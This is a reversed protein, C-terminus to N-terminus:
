QKNVPSWAPERVNGKSSPLRMKVAGDVSVAALIGRDGLQTAYVVMTGNPSISPSEDLYTETLVRVVGRKLDQVAIHFVGHNRHVMVLYRGDPTVQARANYDGEFTLREVDGSAIELKYIQPKGGRNSTFILSKGDPLWRPETDIAFHHTIRTLKKTAIEMTYIEPNGDKSLVLALHKGNPSWDPAGNLGRFSSILTRNGSRLEQIYIAPRNSEFSVYAIHSGDASWSPSLIPEKSHLLNRARHGDADAVELRYESVTKDAVKHRNETVYVIRTSFNGPIGTIKEYVKDSIAHGISRLDKESATFDGSVVLKGSPVNYLEYVVRYRKNAKDSEVHGILLYEAGLMRWDRFHVQKAYHPFSLMNQRPMAAFQGSRYLDESVIEALDESPMKNGPWEFPAVAISVPDDQGQTIEIVLEAFSIQPVLLLVLWCCTVARRICCVGKSM